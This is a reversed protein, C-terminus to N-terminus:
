CRQAALSKRPDKNAVKCSSNNIIIINKYNNMNNNNNDM